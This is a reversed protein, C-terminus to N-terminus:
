ATTRSQNRTIDIATCVEKIVESITPHPFIIERVDQVRLEAEIFASASHIMESCAGGLLHIGLIRGNDADAIVKCLGGAKKGYEALFRGNARMQMSSSLVKFGADRAEQETLGCGAAEPLSYVVWPVAEYRMGASKGGDQLPFMQEVAVEAMRSASHALLSKGTVDGAAYVHPLNTQMRDNVIIGSRAIDLGFGQSNKLKELGQTNPRRGVSLLVIDAPINQQSGKSDTYAVGEDTIADVRCGLKFNVSKMERRLLKSFEPEMLPVIEPMMEIVTVQSGVSSFFSAFEIGIVGGGIIVLQEPISEVSLIETSTMVRPDDIGSIPPIIPSSGTALLLNRGEYVTGDVAVHQDDLWEATGNVVTVNSKKMLFEIGKRLTEITDQKWAMASALDFEVTGTRVGYKAGERAHVYHKAANLLAKTPICGVNTCVGGMHSKEILLVKKGKEGAREAAVYGGPGAGIIILDYIEM